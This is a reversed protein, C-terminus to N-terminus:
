CGHCEGDEGVGLLIAIVVIVVNSMAGVYYNTVITRQLNDAFFDITAVCDVPAALASLAAMVWDKGVALM